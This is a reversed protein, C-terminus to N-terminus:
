SIPAKGDGSHEIHESSGGVGGDAEMGIVVYGRGSLEGRGGGDYNEEGDDCETKGPWGVRGWGAGGLCDGTGPEEEGDGEGSAGGDKENGLRPAPPGCGDDKAKLETYLHGILM